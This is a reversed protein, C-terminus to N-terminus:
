SSNKDCSMICQLISVEVKWAEIEHQLDKIEQTMMEKEKTLGEVETVKVLVQKQLQTAEVRLWEINGEDYHSLEQKLNAKVAMLTLNQEALRVREEELRAMRRELTCRQTQMNKIVSEKRSITNLFEAVDAKISLCTVSFYNQLVKLKVKHLKQSLESQDSPKM